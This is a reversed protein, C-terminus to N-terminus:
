RGSVLLLISRQTPPVRASQRTTSWKPLSGRRSWAAIKISDVVNSLLGDSEGKSVGAVWHAPSRLPVGSVSRKAGQVAACDALRRGALLLAPLAWILRRELSEM